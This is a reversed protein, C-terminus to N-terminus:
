RDGAAVKCRGVVHLVDRRVHHRMTEDDCGIGLDFANGGGVDQSFSQRAHRYRTVSRTVHTVRRNRYRSPPTATSNAHEGPNGITTGIESASADSSRPASATSANKPGRRVATCTQLTGM